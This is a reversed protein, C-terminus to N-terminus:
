FLRTDKKVVGQGVFGPDISLFLIGVVPAIWAEAETKRYTPPSMCLSVPQQNLFSSIGM